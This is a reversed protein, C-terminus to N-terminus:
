LIRPYLPPRLVNGVSRWSTTVTKSKHRAQRLSPAPNASSRAVSRFNFATGSSAPKSHRTPFDSRAITTRLQDKLVLNSRHLVTTQLHGQRTKLTEFVLSAAGLPLARPHERGGILASLGDNIMLVCPIAPKSLKARCIRM